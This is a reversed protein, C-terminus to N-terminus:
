RILTIFLSFKVKKRKAIKAIIKWATVPYRDLIIDLDDEEDAATDASESEEVLSRPTYDLHLSYLSPIDFVKTAKLSKWM